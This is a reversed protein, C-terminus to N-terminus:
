RLYSAVVEAMREPTAGHPILTLFAGDPGILYTLSGHDILVEGGERSTRVLRRHVRYARTVARIQAESGTLGLLRHDFSAVYAALVTPTDRAPDVTIFIPQVQEARSGLLRLAEAMVGLDLPCIDPCGTYGFFVLMHRGRFDADTRARGTHDTLTFPGGIPLTPGAGAVPGALAGAVLALGALLLRLRSM